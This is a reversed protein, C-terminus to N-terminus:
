ATTVAPRSSTVSPTLREDLVVRGGRGPVVTVHEARQPEGRQDPASLRAHELITRAMVKMELQAFAAGICRRM